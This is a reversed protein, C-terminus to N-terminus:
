AIALFIYDGATLGGVATFGSSLPNVINANTVQAANSNLQIYPDTSAANIGRVSDFLYWPSTSDTRKIIVLRAGSSFGCDVDYDTGSAKTFSGIKSIGDVSAFLYAIFNGTSRNTRSQTGVTFVSSTPETDNFYTSSTAPAATNFHNYKTAGSISNYIAWHNTGDRDKIIMLEPAVGLNHSVTRNAGTGTYTVVDFYGKARRWMWAYSTSTTGTADRYGNQYDFASMNGDTVQSGTNNTELYTGQTLRTQARWDGTSAVNQHLAMDVPFGAVYAPPTPSTGGKTDIAFLDTAAFESAPKHPRRIAVYMFTNTSGGTNLNFGNNRIDWLSNNTDAANTNAFLFKNTGDYTFGRMSDMIGWSGTSNTKRILIWQPEFGLDVSGNGSTDTTFSGCKIIAEDSDEGFDQEDHAFLYAVYDHGSTNVRDHTGVTFVSDTPTTSNWYATSTFTANTQNLGTGKGNGTSRHYVIWDEVGSTRKVMIM